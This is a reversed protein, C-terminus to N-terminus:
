RTTNNNIIKLLMICIQKVIHLQGKHLINTTNSNKIQSIKNHALTILTKTDLYRVANETDFILDQIYQKIPKNM